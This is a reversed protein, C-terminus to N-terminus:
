FPPEDPLAGAPYLCLERYQGAWGSRYTGTGGCQCHDPHEPATEGRHCDVQEQHVPVLIGDGQDDWTMIQMVEGTGGCGGPCEQPHPDSEYDTEGVLEAAQLLQQEAERLRAALNPHATDAYDMDVAIDALLHAIPRIPAQDRLERLVAVPDPGTSLWDHLYGVGERLPAIPLSSWDGSDPQPDAFGALLRGFDKPINVLDSGHTVLGQMIPDGTELVDAIRRAGAIVQELDLPAPASRRRHTVAVALAAGGALVAAALTTSRM